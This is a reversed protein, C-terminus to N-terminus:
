NKKIFVLLDTLAELATQNGKIELLDGIHKYLLSKSITSEEEAEYPINVSPMSPNGQGPDVGPLGGKSYSHPGQTVVKQGRAMSSLDMTAPYSETYVDQLERLFASM